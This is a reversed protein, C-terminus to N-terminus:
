DMEQHSGEIVMGLVWCILLVFLVFLLVLLGLFIFIITMFKTTPMFDSVAWM